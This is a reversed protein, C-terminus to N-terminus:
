FNLEGSTRLTKALLVAGPNSLHDTDVMMPMTHANDAFVRCTPSACQIQWLSAYTVGWEKARERARQDLAGFGEGQHRAAIGDDKQEVGQALLLPLAVDYEQVPGVLVVPIHRQQFWKVTGELTDLGLDGLDPSWRSTLVVGDLADGAAQGAAKGLSPPPVYHDYQNFVFRRLKGCDTDDWHGLVPPCGSDTAELFNVEPYASKLGYWLYAAHSDGFVLYNKKNEVPALCTQPRFQEFTSGSTIFCTGIQTQQPLDIYTALSLARASFRGPFGHATVILLGACCLIAAAAGASAFLKPRAFRLSGARFPQEVWRWSVYACAISIALLLPTSRVRATIGPLGGARAALLLPWHWLYLSYSIKGIFRMPSLALLRSVLTGSEEGTWLLLAAGCCPALAAVGPFPTHKSYLMVALAILILGALALVLRLAPQLRPRYPTIALSAGIMLEWARSYPMFFAAQPMRYAMYASVAFSMGGFVAITPLLRWGRKWAVLLAAPFLLYFQEEVSLSWTHELLKVRTVNFYSDQAWFYLNSYSLVAAILSRAYPMFDVPTLVRAGLVTTGVLLVFLAPLIRRVRREYFSAFSFTGRALDRGIIGTILYGSIVFFIDVGIYGGAFFGQPVFHFIVVILVAICRLGDIDGRYGKEAHTVGPRPEAAAGSSHAIECTSM